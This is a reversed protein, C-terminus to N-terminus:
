KKDDDVVTYDADVVKEGSSSATDAGTSNTAGASGAQNEGAQEYMNAGIKQAITNISDKASLIRERDDSALAEKARKIEDEALQKDNAPIKDGSDKITKELAYVISEVENKAEALEKAKKDEAANMEAEKVM